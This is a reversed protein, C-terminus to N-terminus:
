PEPILLALTSEYATPPERPLNKGQTESWKPIDQEVFLTSPNKSRIQARVIRHSQGEGGGAECSLAGANLTSIHPLLGHPATVKM